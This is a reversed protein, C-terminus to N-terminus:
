PSAGIFAEPWGSHKEIVADIETMLRVTEALATVIKQYHAVEEANLYRGAKRRDDLWKYCIQYGGVHFNWVAEPVRRLGVSQGKNLWVTNHSYTIKELPQTPLKGLFETNPKELAPAELLHVAVLESGFQALSRFLQLSSTLPVRPFDRRLFESYRHRYSASYLVAYVYNMLEDPSVGSPLGHQGTQRLKLKESFAKLFSPALNPRAGDHERLLSRAAGKAHTIYLPFLYNVEKLSVSHHGIIRSTCFVHEYRGIEVSRAAALARNWGVLMQSMVKECPSAYFGRSNGTYYTFRFDFPRYLISALRQRAPGSNRVDAQATEVRWDRADKGLEYKERAKEAPLSAFDKVRQWLDDANFNITLSDRATVVGVGNIPFIDTLKWGEDYESRCATNHPKFFYFPSDPTLENWVTSAASNHSLWDYKSERSGWLESHRVFSTAQSGHLPALSDLAIAVGQLIDFVNKDELGDPSREKKKANGHLDLLRVRPFTQMLSRRMGRFTPNDLYGHNTIYSLIGHGAKGLTTQAFRIFKVYDDQLWLKRENLAAGDVLKYADVIRQATESMNASIGSYPPNGIVVTFHKYWKVENVSQAEHALADFGIQPLQKVKPELTNTLYIRARDDDGLQDWATFGTEKLKLPLKMHAIAYPAMMLEYGYVRPLLHKPVYQNWAARQQVETLGQKNWKAKLTSHIVEIAEVLFTATGTAPDLIQVFPEDPNLSRKEGPEDTLLPLKLQSHRQVMVGWTVTSALGDELGFETQLLEHVSRVIHSVVPQPTYFVGRQIKLKKNYASLFHEYFHIVPDESRTRNGFDRLIAPLDTEDGRLLEVVDQIGLEDFNIRGRRGGLRLFTTLMEKLFPNTKPLIEVIDDAKVFTGHRGESMETRSVAATLLGYTITQAYTDAFDEPKLDHFLVARFAEYLSTLPGKESEHAMLSRAADRIRRAFGALTEALGNATRIVHGIRQRFAGNWQSHWAQADSTNKPWRLRSQLVQAVYDVHLPTDAGDWGLVRLTPLDGDEQHFHAFAIERQDTREDGFASIFLLDSAGWRKADAKNASARKRLVLHSLIRRLVVVPLKKKEFEVFFIGWPQNQSLPRLQHITKIKAADVDKLGLEEPDYEFTLEDFDYDEMPWDLEDELYRILDPFKRIQRLRDVASM